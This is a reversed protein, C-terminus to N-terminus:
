LLGRKRLRAPSQQGYVEERLVRLAKRMGALLPSATHLAALFQPEDLRALTGPDIRIAWLDGPSATIEVGNVRGAAVLKAQEDRFRRGRPNDPQNAGPQVPRGIAETLATVKAAPTGRTGGPCALQAAAGFLDRRLTTRGKPSGHTSSIVARYDHLSTEILRASSSIWSLWGTPLSGWQLSSGAASDFM